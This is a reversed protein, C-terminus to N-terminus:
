MIFSLILLITILIIFIFSIINTIKPHNDIKINIALVISMLITYIFQIWYSTDSIIMKIIREILFRLFVQM